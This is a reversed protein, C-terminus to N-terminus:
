NPLIIAHSLMLMIILEKWGEAQNTHRRVVWSTPRRQGKRINRSPYQLHDSRYGCSWCYNKNLSSHVSGGGKNVERCDSLKQTVSAIKTIATVLKEIIAPLDKELVANTTTLNAVATCKTATATALNAIVDHQKSPSRPRPHHQILHLM